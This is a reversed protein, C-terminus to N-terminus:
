ATLRVLAAWAAVLGLAMGAVTIYARIAGDATIMRPYRGAHLDRQSGTLATNVTQQTVRSSRLTAAACAAVSDIVQKSSQM